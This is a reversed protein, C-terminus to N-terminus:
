ILTVKIKSKTFLSPKGFLESVYTNKIKLKIVNEKTMNTNDYVNNKNFYGM